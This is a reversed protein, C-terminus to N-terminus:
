RRPKKAPGTAEPESSAQMVRRPREEAEAALERRGEERIREAEDGRPVVDPAVLPTGSSLGLRIRRAESRIMELWEEPEPDVASKLAIGAVAAVAGESYGLARAAVIARARNPYRDPREVTEGQERGALLAEVAQGLAGAVKRAYDFGPEAQGRLIKSVQRQKLAPHRRQLESQSEGCRALLRRLGAVM